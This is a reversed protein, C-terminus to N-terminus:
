RSAAGCHARSSGVSNLRWSSSRRADRSHGIFSSSGVEAELRREAERELVSVALRSRHEFDRRDMEVGIAHDVVGHWERHHVGGHSACHHVRDVVAAPAGGDLHLGAIVTGDGGARECRGSLHNGGSALDHVQPGLGAIVVVPQDCARRRAEGDELGPMRRELVGCGAAVLRVPTGRHHAFRPGAAAGRHGRTGDEM